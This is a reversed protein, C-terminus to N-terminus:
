IIINKIYAYINILDGKGKQFRIKRFGKYLPSQLSRVRLINLPLRGFFAFIFFFNHTHNRTLHLTSVRFGGASRRVKDWWQVCASFFIILLSVGYIHFPFSLKHIWYLGLWFALIIKYYQCSVRFDTHLILLGLTILMTPFSLLAPPSVSSFTM